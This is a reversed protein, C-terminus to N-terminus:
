ARYVNTVSPKGLIEMEFVVRGDLIEIIKSKGSSNEEFMKALESTTNNSSDLIIGGFNILYHKEGLYDVNGIYPTLLERGREKGKKVVISSVGFGIPITTSSTGYSDTLNKWIPIVATANKTEWLGTIM